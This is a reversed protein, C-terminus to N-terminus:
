EIGLKMWMRRLDDISIQGEATKSQDDISAFTFEAGFFPSLVRSAIGLSGMAFSVIKAMRSCKNVFGLIILNDAPQTATTVIKCIDGGIKREMKMLQILRKMPPTEKSDHHSAIVRIDHTKLQKIISCCFPFSIDVDILDFGIEAANLLLTISQKRRSRDTAIIPCRKNKVITELASSETLYDLRYEILEPKKPTIRKLLSPIRDDHPFVSLCIGTM